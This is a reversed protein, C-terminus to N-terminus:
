VIAEQVLMATGATRAHVSMRLGGKPRLSLLTSFGPVGQDPALSFDFRQLLCAAILTMETMAFQAGICARPGAGFPFYAFPPIQKEREALFRLPDFREPEPFWRGDRHTVYSFAYVISGEPVHYGALELDERAERAFVGVAPPYLRLTEKLVCTLYALKSVDALTPTRTQLTVDLEEQVRRQIEPHRGM